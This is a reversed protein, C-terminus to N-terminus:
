NVATATEGPDPPEMRRVIVASNTGGFAFSNKLIV